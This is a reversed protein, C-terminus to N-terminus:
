REQVDGSVPAEFQAHEYDPGDGEGGFRTKEKRNM